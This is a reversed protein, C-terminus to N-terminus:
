YSWIRSVSDFDLNLVHFIVQSFGISATRHLFSFDKIFLYLKNEILCMSHLHKRQRAMGLRCQPIAMKLHRQPMCQHQSHVYRRQNPRHIKRRWRGLWVWLVLHLHLKYRLSWSGWLKKCRLSAKWQCLRVNPSLFGHSKAHFRWFLLCLWWPFRVPLLRSFFGCCFFFM